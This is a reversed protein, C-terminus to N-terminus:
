NGGHQWCRGNPSYTMRSCRGGKKTRGTCQIAVARAAPTSPSVSRATTAEKQRAPVPPPPPPPDPLTPQKSNTPSASVEPSFDLRRVKELLITQTYGGKDIVLTDADASASVFSGKVSEGGVLEVSVLRKSKSKAIRAMSGEPLSLVPISLLLLCVVRFCKNM